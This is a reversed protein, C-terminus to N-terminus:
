LSECSSAVSTNLYQCALFQRLLEHSRYQVVGISGPKFDSEEIGEKLEVSRKGLVNDIKVFNAEKRRVNSVNM